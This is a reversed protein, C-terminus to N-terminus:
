LKINEIKRLLVIKGAEFKILLEGFFRSEILSNLLSVLKALTM